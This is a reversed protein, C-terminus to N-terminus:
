DNGLRSNLTPLVLQFRLQEVVYKKVHALSVQMQLLLPKPVNTSLYIYCYGQYRSIAGITLMSNM